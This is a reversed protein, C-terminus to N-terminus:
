KKCIEHEKLIQLQMKDFKDLNAHIWKLQKKTLKQSIHIYSYNPYQEGKSGMVIYLQERLIHEDPEKEYKNKLYKNHRLSRIQDLLQKAVKGHEGYKCHYFKGDPSLWGNLGKM